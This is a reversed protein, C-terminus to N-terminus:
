AVTAGPEHPRNLHGEVTNPEACVDVRVGGNRYM